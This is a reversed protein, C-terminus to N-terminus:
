EELLIQNIIIHIYGFNSQINKTTRTTQINNITFSDTWVFNTYKM